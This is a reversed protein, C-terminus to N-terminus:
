DKIKTWSPLHDGVMPHSIRDKRREAKYTAWPHLTGHLEERRM